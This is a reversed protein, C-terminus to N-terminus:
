ANTAKLYGEWRWSLEEFLFQLAEKAEDKDNEFNEMVGIVHALLNHLSDGQILVGPFQRNPLKVVAFNVDEEFVEVLLEKKM